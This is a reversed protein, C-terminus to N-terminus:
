MAAIAGVDIWHQIQQLSFGAAQLIERSHEGLHPPPTTTQPPSGPSYIPQNFYRDGATDQLLLRPINHMVFTEAEALTQVPAHPVAAQELKEQWHRTTKRLLVKQITDIVRARHQVREPNTRFGEEQLWEPHGLAEAFKTFQHDNGVAVVLHGDRSAFSQYPVIQAHANGWRKPVQGTTLYSQAVNSLASLTAGMLSVDLVPGRPNAPTNPRAQLGALVSVVAFLGTIIDTLAVGVKMPPGTEEGTIAMLGSLAQITFDYGPTNALPTDAGYGTLSVVVLRPNHAQLADAGIGLKEQTIPLYNHLVADADKILHYLIVRGEDSKLNLALSKKNRNVAAFYAAMGDHRFPPGWHRTEDGGDIPEIKVVDAGLDGLIMTAYPGALVRTLDIIKLGNLLQM